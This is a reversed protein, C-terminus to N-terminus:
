DISRELFLSLAPPPLVSKLVDLVEDYENAVQLVPHSQRVPHFGLRLYLGIAKHSWTQTDLYVDRKPELESIRRMSRIVIARGLGINQYDPHTCVWHLRGYRQSNEELWWAMSTAVPKGNPAIIFSLRRFLEPEENMFDRYFLERAADITLFELVETMLYAWNEIDGSEYYRFCYNDPLMPENLRAVEEPHMLMTLKKKPLSRDATRLVDRSYM